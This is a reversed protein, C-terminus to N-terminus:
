LQTWLSQLYLTKYPLWFAVCWLNSKCQEICAACECVLNCTCSTLFLYMSFIGVWINKSLSLSLSHEVVPSRSSSCKFQSKRGWLSPLVIVSMWKWIATTWLGSHPLEPPHTSHWHGSEVHLWRLTIFRPIVLQMEQKMSRNHMINMIYICSMCYNWHKMYAYMNHKRNYKCKTWTFLAFMNVLHFSDSIVAQVPRRPHVTASLSVSNM